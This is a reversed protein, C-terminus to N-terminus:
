KPDTTGDAALTKYVNKFNNPRPIVKKISTIPYSVSPKTVIGFININRVIRSLM